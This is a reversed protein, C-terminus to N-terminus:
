TGCTHQAGGHWGLKIVTVDCSETVCSSVAARPVLHEQVVLHLNTNLLKNM